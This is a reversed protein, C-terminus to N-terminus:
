CLRDAYGNRESTLACISGQVYSTRYTVFGYRCLRNNRQCLVVKTESFRSSRDATHRFHAFGLQDLGFIFSFEVELLTVESDNSQRWRSLTTPTSGNM